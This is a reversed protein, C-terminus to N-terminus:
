YTKMGAKITVTAFIFNISRDLYRLEQCLTHESESPGLAFTLETM